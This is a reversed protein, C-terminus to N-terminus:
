IWIKKRLLPNRKFISINNADTIEVKGEEKGMTKSTSAKLRWCEKWKVANRLKRLGLILDATMQDESSKFVYHDLTDMCLCQVMEQLLELHGEEM